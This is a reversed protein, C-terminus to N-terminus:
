VALMMATEDCDPYKVCALCDGWIKIPLDERKIRKFGLRSFFGPRYTLTFLNKIGLSKAETIVQTALNSGIGKGTQEPEVAMSRIEALDDWCLQLACFGSVRGDGNNEYVCFDRLHEYILSLPRPLLENKSGYYNLLSHIYGVDKLTAKRIM